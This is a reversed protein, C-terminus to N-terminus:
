WQELLEDEDAVCVLVTATAGDLELEDVACGVDVDGAPVVEADGVGVM